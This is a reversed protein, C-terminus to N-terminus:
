CVQIRQQPEFASWCESKLARRIANHELPKVRDKGVVKRGLKISDRGEQLGRLSHQPIVSEIKEARVPANTPTNIQSAGIIVLRDARDSQGLLLAVTERDLQPFPGSKDSAPVGGRAVLRESV